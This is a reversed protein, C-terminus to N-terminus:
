FATTVLNCSATCTKKEKRCSRSGVNNRKCIRFAQQCLTRCTPSSFINEVWASSFTPVDAYVAPVPGGCGQGFSTLGILKADSPKSINSTSFLPGGSDGQCTDHGEEGGACLQVGTVLDDGYVERCDDLSQYPVATWLLNESIDGGSSTTGWGSVYVDDGVSPYDDGFEIVNVHSGLHFPSVLRILALDYAGNSSSGNYQPHLKYWLAHRVQYTSATTDSINVVGGACTIETVAVKSTNFTDLCHAATIVYYGGNIISGGCLGNGGEGNPILLRCMWPFQGHNAVTGGVIKPQANVKTLCVLGLLAVFLLLASFRM